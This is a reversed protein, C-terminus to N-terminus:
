GKKVHEAGLEVISIGLEVFVMGLCVSAWGMRVPITPFTSYNKAKFHNLDSFFVM